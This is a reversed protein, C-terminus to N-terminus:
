PQKAIKKRRAWLEWRAIFPVYWGAIAIATAGTYQWLKKFPDGTLDFTVIEPVMPLLRRALFAVKWRRCHDCFLIVKKQRGEERLAEVIEELNQGTTIAGNKRIVPIKYRATHPSLYGAILDAESRRPDTPNTYGGTAIIVGILRKEERIYKAAHLLFLEYHVNLTTGYGFICLAYGRKHKM